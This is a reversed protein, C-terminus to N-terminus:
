RRHGAKLLEGVLAGVRSANSGKFLVTDGENLNVLLPQVLDTAKEEHVGRKEKPLANRLHEMMAGATHVIDAADSAPAALDAHFGASGEGLEKMEGLVAVKRGPMAKLVSLAARMSAPNANYSEDLVTITKGDIELQYREGRGAGMRFAALADAADQADVGTRAAALLAALANSAMHIGSAAMLFSIRKGLIEAEIHLGEEGEEARFLKAAKGTTGFSLLDGVGAERCRKALREYYPSDAPLIMAGGPRVGEAIEAKADAIAEMSGLFEIHAEAITTILALHPKVLTTLGRIEGAHNMGMEFVGAKASPPLEALTLPVGIHNNFSKEAAHVKGLPALAYRLMEKTTTKGASGTVGVLPAFSRDRAAQALAEVARLTDPVVLQPGAGKVERSVLAAAAGKEFAQAVFDHGDREATLAVFLNGPELSRTDISLGSAAWGDGNKLTGKTAAAAQYALWLYQATM